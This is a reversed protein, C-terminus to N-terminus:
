SVSKVARAVIGALRAYHAAYAALIPRAGYRSRLWCHPPAVGSTLTRAVDSARDMMVLATAHEVRRVRDSGMRQLRDVLAVRVPGPWLRRMVASPVAVGFRERVVRLAFYVAARGRWRDAREIVADWDLTGADRQILLALDLQWLTGTLAHHIALHAALYVLLDEPALTRATAGWAPAV